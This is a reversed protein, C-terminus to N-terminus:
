GNLELDCKEILAKRLMQVLQKKTLKMMESQWEEGLPLYETQETDTIVNNSVDHIIEGQQWQKVRHKAEELSRFDEIPPSYYTLRNKGYISARRWVEREKKWWLLGKTEIGKAQISFRGCYEVIRYEQNNM